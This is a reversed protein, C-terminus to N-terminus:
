ARDRLNYNSCYGGWQVLREDYDGDRGEGIFGRDVGDGPGSDADWGFGLGGTGVVANGGKGRSETEGGSM